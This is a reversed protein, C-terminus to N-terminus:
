IVSAIPTQLSNRNGGARAEDASDQIKNCQAFFLLLGNLLLFIGGGICPTSKLPFTVISLSVYLIAKAAPMSNIWTKVCMVAAFCNFFPWEIPIMLVGVIFTYVGIGISKENDDTFWTILAFGILAITSM